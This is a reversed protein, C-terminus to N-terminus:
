QDNCYTQPINYDIYITKDSNPENVTLSLSLSNNETM